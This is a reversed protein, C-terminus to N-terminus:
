VNRRELFHFLTIRPTEVPLILRLARAPVRISFCATLRNCFPWPHRPKIRRSLQIKIRIPSFARARKAFRDRLKWPLLSVSNIIRYRFPYRPTHLHNTSVTTHRARYWTCACSGHFRSTVRHTEDCWIGLSSFPWRHARARFPGAAFHLSRVKNWIARLSLVSLCVRLQALLCRETVRRHTAGDNVFFIVSFLPISINTRRINLQVFTVDTLNYWIKKSTVTRQHKEYLSTTRKRSTSWM